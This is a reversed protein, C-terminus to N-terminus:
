LAAIDDSITAAPLDAKRESFHVATLNYNNVSSGTSRQLSFDNAKGSLDAKANDNVTVNTSFADINLKASATNHLDVELEIKSLNGFSKVEANDYAAISRLDAATVWVVLKESNYSTIRLVGNRSQVLASQAYYQNYVKVQDAPGDSLYVEVNGHIELKNITSIDSLITVNQAHDAAAAFTSTAIGSVLVLATFISLFTTKM